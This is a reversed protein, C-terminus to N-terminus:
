YTACDVFVQVSSVTKLQEIYQLMAAERRSSILNQRAAEMRDEGYLEDRTIVFMYVGSGSGDPRTWTSPAHTGWDGLIAEQAYDPYASVDAKLEYYEAVDEDEDLGQAEGARKLFRAVFEGPGLQYRGQEISSILAQKEAESSFDIRALSIMPPPGISGSDLAQEIELVSPTAIQSHVPDLFASDIMSAEVLLSLADPNPTGQTAIATAFDPTSAVLNVYEAVAATVTADIPGTVLTRAQDLLYYRELRTVARECASSRLMGPNMSLLYDVRDGFEAYGVKRTGVLMAVNPTATAGPTQSALGSVPTNTPTALSQLSHAAGPGLYVYGGVLVITLLLATVTVQASKRTRAIKSSLPSVHAENM